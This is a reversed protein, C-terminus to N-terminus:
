AFEARLAAHRALDEIKSVRGWAIRHQELKAIAEDVTWERFVAAILAGLAARNQVRAPNGAFRPDDALAANGLVGSCLRQWEDPSQVSLM